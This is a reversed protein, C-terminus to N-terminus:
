FEYQKEVMECQYESSKFVKITYGLVKEKDNLYNDMNEFTIEESERFGLGDMCYLAVKGKGSHVLYPTGSFTIIDGTEVNYKKLDKKEEAFEIKM